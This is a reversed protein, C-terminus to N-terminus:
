AIRETRMAFRSVRSGGAFWLWPSPSPLTGGSVTAGALLLPLSLKLILSKVNRRM